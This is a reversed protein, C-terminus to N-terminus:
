GNPTGILMLLVPIYLVLFGAVLFCQSCGLTSTKSKIADSMSSNANSWLRVMHRNMATIAFPDSADNNDVIDEVIERYQRSHPAEIVERVKLSWSAMVIGAISAFTSIVPCAAIADSAIGWREGDAFTLPQSAAVKAIGLSSAILIGCASIAWQAKREVDQWDNTLHSYFDKEAEIVSALLSENTHTKEM